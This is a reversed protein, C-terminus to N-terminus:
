ASVPCFTGRVSSFMQVRDANVIRKRDEHSLMSKM